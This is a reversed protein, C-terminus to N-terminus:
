RRGDSRIDIRPTGLQWQTGLGTSSIKIAMERGRVRVFVQGTFKEVPVSATRVVGASNSGGVSAPSNYGSGSNQLANLEFTVAPSAADSGEFTVDPLLRNVFSFSDGDDIDFYASEIYAEIPSAPSTSGDDAGVEHQVIFNNPTTIAALPSKTLSSDLWATRSLNGYYWANELYNLVVYRDIVSSNASCYFWWVENFGENTGAFFQYAQDM